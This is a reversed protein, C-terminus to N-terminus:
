TANYSGHLCVPVKNLCVHSAEHFCIRVSVCYELPLQHQAEITSRRHVNAAAMHAPGCGPVKSTCSAM